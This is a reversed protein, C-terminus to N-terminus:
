LIYINCIEVKTNRCFHLGIALESKNYSELASFQYTISLHKSSVNKKKM